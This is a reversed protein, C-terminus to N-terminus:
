KDGPWFQLSSPILYICPLGSPICTFFALFESKTQVENELQVIVTFIIGSNCYFYNASWNGYLFVIWLCYSKLILQWLHTFIEIEQHLCSTSINGMLNQVTVAHEWLFSMVSWLQTGCQMTRDCLIWNYCMWIHPQFTFFSFSDPIGKFYVFVNLLLFYSLFFFCRPKSVWKWSSHGFGLGEAVTVTAARTWGTDEDKCNM